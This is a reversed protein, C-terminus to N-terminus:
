EASLTRAPDIRAARVAPTVAAGLAVLGLGVAVAAFTAPDTARVDFLLAELLGAALWAAVLGCAIGAGAMVMAHGVVLRLVGPITAGLAMRIALERKGQSVLYALVGYTGITALGLAVGAFLALLVMLFRRRALSDAVRTEMSRVRFM